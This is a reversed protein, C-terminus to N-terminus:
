RPHPWSLGRKPLRTSHLKTKKKSSTFTKLLTGRRAEPVDSSDNLRQMPSTRLNWLTPAECILFKSKYKELRYDKNERISAHRLTPQSDCGDFQDWFKGGRTEGISWEEQFNELSPTKRSVFWSHCLKCLSWPVTTTAKKRKLLEKWRTEGLSELKLLSHMRTRHYVVWSHYAKWLLWLMRTTATEEKQHITAMIRCKTQNNMLRATRSCVSTEQKADSETKYFQCDPPHWYEWPSRTWTIKLYYRWPQRLVRGTQSRGRDSRKRSTSRSRTMSPESPPAAKPTPKARDNSEHPFSCQDRRSCISKGREVGISGKRSKVVAGTEIKGHRADLNRLRLKQDVRRKMTKIKQYNPMSIKQHIEM